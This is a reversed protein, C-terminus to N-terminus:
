SIQKRFSLISGAFIFLGLGALPLIQSGLYKLPTGKLYIARVAEMIYRLPNGLTIKQLWGPMNDIPIFFGSLLIMFVMFFWSLFLAQQQTGAITSVFLGLGLTTFLYLFILLYLNLLSGALTLHFIKEALKLVVLVEIFAYVLFPLQKGLIFQIKSIPTVMLQELTGSEKERVIGLSGLLLTIVTIILVVIGPVMFAQNRLEPNFWYRTELNILRNKQVFEKKIHGPLWKVMNGASIQQLYGLATLAQNGDVADLLVLIDAPQGRQVSKYFDEPIYIGVRAKWLSIQTNLEKSSSVYGTVDFRDNNEIRSILDRSLPSEDQDCIVTKVQRTETTMAYGLIILQFLPALILLRLMFKDHKLQQVEKRMIAPVINM